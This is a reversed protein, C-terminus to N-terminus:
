EAGARKTPVAAEKGAREAAKEARRAARREERRRERAAERVPDLEPYRQACKEHVFKNIEKIMEKHFIGVSDELKATAWILGKLMAPGEVSKLNVWVSKAKGSEFELKPSLTVTVPAPKGDEEVQCDVTQVPLHLTYKPESLAAIILQRNLRISTSCRADGSSWKIQKSGAGKEIDKQGWTKGIECKLPGGRREKALIIECVDRECAKLQEKEGPPEELARVTPAGAALVCVAGAVAQLWLGYPRQLM